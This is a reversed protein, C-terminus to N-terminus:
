VQFRPGRQGFLEEFHQVKGLNAASTVGADVELGMFLSVLIAATSTIVEVENL